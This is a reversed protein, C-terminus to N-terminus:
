GAGPPDHVSIKRPAQRPVHPPAPASPRTRPHVRKRLRLRPRPPKVAPRPRAPAQAAAQSTAHGLGAAIMATIFAAEAAEDPAGPALAAQRALALVRRGMPALDHAAIAPWTEQLGQTVSFALLYEAHDITERQWLETGCSLAAQIRHAAADARIARILGAIYDQPTSDPTPAIAEMLAYLARRVLETAVAATTNFMATGAHRPLGAHVAIHAVQVRLGHELILVRAAELLDRRQSEQWRRRAEHHRRRRALANDPEDWM